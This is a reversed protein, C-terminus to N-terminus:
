PRNVYLSFPDPSGGRSAAVQANIGEFPKYPDPLFALGPNRLQDKWDEVDQDPLTAMVQKYFGKVNPAAWAKVLERYIEGAHPSCNAVVEVCAMAYAMPVGADPWGHAHETFFSESVANARTTPNRKM